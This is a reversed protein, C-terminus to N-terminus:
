SRSEGVREAEYAKRLIEALEPVLPLRPNAGTCQDNFAVDAMEDLQALFAERDIGAQAFSRPMDVETLLRDIAALLSDVGEAPTRAPLGLFRAIEAYREAARPWSYQPYAVLKSPLEANYRIVHPLLIANARGHPIHFRAGVVHALSHNIGLFANTFALGAITAAYHMKARAERDTGDRYARPLYKLILDIAKLALGDTFDSAMVSVYAEIAHVLADIGTDATLRPPVTMVLDPDVIAVDPTLEYDTVPYKVNRKRDTIVAFATVESGTGSTTPIAIFKAKRGLHPFRIARKRIYLFKLRLEEFRADPYEYFLWMGKAADMASGGGLAIICDPEFRQMARAGAEVTEVSPDPEVDSFVEVTVGAKRLFYEARAVYGLKVMMPDTVIFARKAQLEALYQLSGPEFYIEPPIRVWQMRPRRLMVRKINILQEVGVNATTSNGGMTGCGLTLSPTAFNYLDGIAGLSAPQNILLRGARVRERFLNIAEQNHSHIVASHGLGYFETMEECRRVGEHFDKVVLYALVPSLKERTFPYEPGVGEVPVLLMKTQAPVDLGAMAAIKVASQGVVAANLEGNPKFMVSALQAAEEPSLFYCGLEVFLHRVKPEVEADVIVAQESACIMGNDFTKSLVIDAVAQELDASKEIYAPVNGPGVGLAPKGCSYAAAVMGAGGTALILAIGPHRMLAQTAELTVPEVWSICGAPAGAAVAAERLIRATEASCHFAKPHFSFIIPNRTKLSILSKFITTSTPNTVPTIGAIIGVPEAVEVYGEEPFERLVGVTRKHRIDNYVYESAFLNKQVKDEYVGMGTEEVALRALREHHALAATAAARVIEDVQQQTFSRMIEQAARAEAVLRDLRQQLSPPVAPSLPRETENGSSRHTRDAEAEAVPASQGRAPQQGLLKTSEPKQPGPKGNTATLM